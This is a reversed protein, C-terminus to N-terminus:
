ELKRSDAENLIDVMVRAKSPGDATIDKMLQAWQAVWTQLSLAADRPINPWLAKKKHDALVRTMRARVIQGPPCYDFGHYCMYARVKKGPFVFKPSRSQM